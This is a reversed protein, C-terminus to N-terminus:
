NQKQNLMKQQVFEEAIKQVYPSIGCAIWDKLMQITNQPINHTEDYVTTMAHWDAVMYFTEYTDQLNVWNKLAGFYHGIHMAGTPRMGSLIRKKSM